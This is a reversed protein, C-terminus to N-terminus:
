VGDCSVSVVKRVPFSFGTQMRGSVRGWCAKFQVLEEESTGEPSMEGGATPPCHLRQSTRDGPHQTRRGSPHPQHQPAHLRAGARSEGPRRTHSGPLRRLCVRASSHARRASLCASARSVCARALLRDQRRNWRWRGPCPLTSQCHPRTPSGSAERSPICLSVKGSTM